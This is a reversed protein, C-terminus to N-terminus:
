NTLEYRTEVGKYKSPIGETMWRPPPANLLYHDFFQAARIMLDYSDKSTKLIHDGDDYQLMWVKKGLRRLAIFLEVGNNWPVGGDAKCHLILLPTNVKDVHMIPSEEIWEQTNEWINQGKIEIQSLRSIGLFTKSDLSLADSIKDSVGAGEFAAAFVNSHTIIYNTFSGANSHGCIAIKTKDVFPLASLYAASGCVSNLATRGSRGKTLYLDPTFVLYGRSVFWPIDINANIMLGPQPFQYIRHSLQHYYNIIIPYKKNQDFNEPKYLIGQSISSDLQKFTCLEPRLWNYKNQFNINTIPTFKKLGKSYYYNPSENFSQRKVIFNESNGIRLPPMGSEIDFNCNAAPLMAVANADFFYPGMYLMKPDSNGWEELKLFGNHKNSVNFGKLFLKEGQTFIPTESSRGLLRLIINNKRGYGHTINLPRHKKELDLYWIDFNDYVLVGNDWNTWAAIGVSTKPNNNTPDFISKNGLIYKPLGESITKFNSTELDYSYYECGHDGNLFVIYNGNPSFGIESINNGSIFKTRTNNKLNVIWYQKKNKYELWYRDGIGEDQVIAYDGKMGILKENESNIHVIQKSIVSIVSLKPKVNKTLLQTSQLITDSHSWVDVSPLDSKKPSNEKQQLDFIVYRGNDSFSIRGDISSTENTKASDNESIMTTTLMGHKHYWISWPILQNNKKNIVYAVQDGFRDLAFNTVSTSDTNSSFLLKSKGTKIDIRVLENNIGQSASHKRQIVITNGLPDFKYDSVLDVFRCMGNLVNFLLLTTEVEKLKCIVWNGKNNSPYKISLITAVYKPNWKQTELNLVFLSDNKIFLFDRDDKSFFVPSGGIIEIKEGNSIKQIVLTARNKDSFRNILELSYAIFKGDNTVSVFRNSGVGYWQDIAAFDIAPKGSNLPRVSFSQSQVNKYLVSDIQSLSQASTMQIGTFIFITLLFILM